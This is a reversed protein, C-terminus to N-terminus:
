ISRYYRIFALRQLDTGLEALVSEGYSTSHLKTKNTKKLLKVLYAPSQELRTVNVSYHSTYVEYPTWNPKVWLQRISVPRYLLMKVWTALLRAFKNWCFFIQVYHSLWNWLVWGGPIEREKEKKKRSFICIGWPLAPPYDNISLYIDYMYLLVSTM